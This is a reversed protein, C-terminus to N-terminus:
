LSPPAGALSTVCVLPEVTLLLEMMFFLLVMTSTITSTCPTAAITTGWCTCALITLACFLRITASSPFPVVASDTASVVVVEAVVVGDVSVVVGAVSVVVGAVSVVVGAVSVVVVGSVTVVVVEVAVVVKNVVVVVVEGWSDGWERGPQAVARMMRAARARM